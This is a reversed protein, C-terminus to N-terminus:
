VGAGRILALAEDGRAAAEWLQKWLQEYLGIVGPDHLDQGGHVLETTVHVGEDPDTPTFLVFGHWGPAGVRATPLVRLEVDALTALSALRDLQAAMVGPGPSWRLAPEGLLFEFRRGGQYLVQQRDLRDAAAEAHDISAAPDVLPILAAAYGATQLLGPVWELQCNRVLSANQERDRAVQQLHPRDALAPWPTTEGHAAETLAIVRERADPAAACARLWAQAQARSPLQEGREARSIAVQQLGIRYSLQRQTLGALTRLARLEAGLQRRIRSPEAM